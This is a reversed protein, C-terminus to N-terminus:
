GAASVKPPRCRQGVTLDCRMILLGPVGLVAACAPDRHERLARFGAREYATIAADNDLYTSVQATRRGSRVGDALMAQMLQNCIGHRRHAEDVAVWEIIWTGPEARPFCRGLADIRAMVHTLNDEDHGLSSYADCLAADLPLLQAEAPDFAALAGVPEGDCEAALFKTFHCNCVHDSVTMREIIALLEMDGLELAVDFPGRPLHSRSAALITRALFPSHDPKARVISIEAPM